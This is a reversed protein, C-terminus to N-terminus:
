WSEERLGALGVISFIILLGDVLGMYVYGWYTLAKRFYTARHWKAKFLGFMYYFSYFMKAIKFHAVGTLAFILFSPVRHTNVHKAFWPDVDQPFLHQNLKTVRVIRTEGKLRTDRVDSGIAPLYKSYFSKLFWILFGFNMSVMFILIILALVFHTKYGFLLCLVAQLIVCVFQLPSVFAIMAPVSNQLSVKQLLGNVLIGKKKLLGTLVIGIFIVAAITFPFYMLVLDDAGSMLVCKGDREKLPEPCSGMCEGNVLGLPAM